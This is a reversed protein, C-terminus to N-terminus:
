DTRSVKTLAAVLSMYLGIFPSGTGLLRSFLAVIISNKMKKRAAPKIAKGFTVTTGVCCQKDM